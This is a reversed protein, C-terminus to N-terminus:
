KEMRILQQLSITMTCSPEIFQSKVVVIKLFQSFNLKKDDLNLCIRLFQMKTKQQISASFTNFCLGL